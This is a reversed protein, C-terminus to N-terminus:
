VAKLNESSMDGNCRRRDYRPLHGPTVLLPLFNDFRPKEFNDYIVGFKPLQLSPDLDRLGAHKPADRAEGHRVM